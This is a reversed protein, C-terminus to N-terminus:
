NYKNKYYLPAADAVHSFIFLYDKSPVYQVVNVIADIHHM